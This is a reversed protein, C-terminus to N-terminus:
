SVMVQLAKAHKRDLFVKASRYLVGALTRATPGGLACQWVNDNVAKSVKVRRGIVSGAFDAFQGLLVTSAGCVSIFPSGNKCIGVSGDGDIVGRWFDVSSILSNHASATFTKRPTVGLDTLTEVLRKSSVSVRLSPKRIMPRNSGIVCIGGGKNRSIPIDTKLFLRFKELHEVDRPALALIVSNGHTTSVCGDTILFGVWYKAEDTLPLDFASEDLAYKRAKTPHRFAVGKERLVALITQGTTKHLKGLARSAGGAVYQAAIAEKTDASLFGRRNIGAKRGYYTIAGQTVGFDAILQSTKEGRAYRYAIQKKQKATLVHTRPM